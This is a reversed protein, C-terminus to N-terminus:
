LNILEIIYKFIIILYSTLKNNDILWNIFFNM